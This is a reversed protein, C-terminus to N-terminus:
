FKIYHGCYFNVDTKTKILSDNKYICEYFNNTLVIKLKEDETIANQYKEIFLHPNKHNKIAMAKILEVFDSDNNYSFFYFSVLLTIILIIGIIITKKQMNQEFNDLARLIYTIYIYVYLVCIYNYLSLFLFM